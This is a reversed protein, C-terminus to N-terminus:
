VQQGHLSEIKIRNHGDGGRQRSQEATRRFRIKQRSEVNREGIARRQRTRGHVTRLLAAARSDADYAVVCPFDTAVRRPYGKGRPLSAAVGLHNEGDSRGFTRAARNDRDIHGGKRLHAPREIHHLAHIGLGVVGLFGISGIVGISGINRLNTLRRYRLQIGGHGSRFPTHRGVLPAINTEFSDHLIIGSHAIIRRLGKKQRIGFRGIRTVSQAENAIRDIRERASQLAAVPHRNRKPRTFGHEHITAPHAVRRTVSLPRRDFLPTAALAERADHGVGRAHGIIATHCHRYTGRPRGRAAHPARRRVPQM